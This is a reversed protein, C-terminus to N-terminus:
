EKEGDFDQIASEVQNNPVFGAELIAKLPNVDPDTSAFVESTVPSNESETWSGSQGEQSINRETSHGTDDASPLDQQTTVADTDRLFDGKYDPKDDVLDQTQTPVPTGSMEIGDPTAPLNGSPNLANPKWEKKDIKPSAGYGVADGKGKPLSVTKTAGGGDRPAEAVHTSADKEVGEDDDETPESADKDEQEDQDVTGPLNGKNKCFGCTCGPKHGGAAKVGVASPADELEADIDTVGDGKLHEDIADLLKDHDANYEEAVEAVIQRVDDSVFDLRAAYEEPSKAVKLYSGVRDSVRKQAVAAAQRRSIQQGEDFQSIDDFLGYM